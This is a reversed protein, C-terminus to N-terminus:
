PDLPKKTIPPLKMFSHDQFLIAPRHLLCGRRITLRHLRSVHYNYWKTTFVATQAKAHFPRKQNKGTPIQLSNTPIQQYNIRKKAM